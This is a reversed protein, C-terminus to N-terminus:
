DSRLSAKSLIVWAPTKRDLTTMPVFSLALSELRRAVPLVVFEDPSLGPFGSAGPSQSAVIHM